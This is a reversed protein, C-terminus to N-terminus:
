LLAESESLDAPEEPEGVREIVAEAYCLCGSHDEPYLFPTDPWDGTNLLVDDSYDAFEVGDLDLHPEFPTVPDGHRWVWSTVALDAVTLAGEITQGGLLGGPRDEVPGGGATDLAERIVGVPVRFDSWEGREPAVVDPAYLLRAGVALLGAVLVAKGEDRHADMDAKIAAADEESLEGHQDIAALAQEQARRTWTTYNAELGDFAGSLLDDTSTALATVKEPGLKGAVNLADVAALKQRWETSGKAALSRLRNGAKELARSMADDAAQLLRLRLAKEINALRPGLPSISASATLAAIPPMDVSVAPGPRPPTEPPATREPAPPAEPAVQPAEVPMEASGVTEAEIEAPSPFRIPSVPAKELEKVWLRRAREEEDPADEEPIGKVRRYAEGSVEIRDYAESYDRSQDPHSVLPTPDYWMVCRNVNEIGMKALHPRYYGFTYAWFMAQADPELHYKFTSQDIMQANWYKVDGLGTLVEPPLDVGVGIRRIVEARLDIYLQDVDRNFEIPKIGDKVDALEGFLLFPTVASASKREKIPTEFHEGFQQVTPDNAAEDRQGTLRENTPGARFGHSLALVGAPIRSTAVARIADTLIRLEDTLPLVSRMASYARGSHRADRTYLRAIFADEPFSETGTVSEYGMTRRAYGRGNPDMVLEEVSLVDWAEGDDDQYGVLYGDGALSLNLATLRQIENMPILTGMGLRDITATMAAREDDTLDLEDDGDPDLVVPPERPDIQMAPVPRLRALANSQYNMPYSIEGLAYYADWAERQWGEPGRRVRHSENPSNPELVTAAATFGAGPQASRFWDRIAM